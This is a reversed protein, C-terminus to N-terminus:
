MEPAMTDISPAATGSTTYPGRRRINELEYMTLAGGTAFHNRGADVAAQTSAIGAGTLTTDGRVNVDFGGDGAQIGSQTNPSIFVGDARAGATSGGVTSVGYCIPPICLSANLGSDSLHSSGISM